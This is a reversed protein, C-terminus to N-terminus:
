WKKMAEKNQKGWMSGKNEKHEMKHERKHERKHKMKYECGIKNDEM